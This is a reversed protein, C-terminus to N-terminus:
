KSIYIHEAEFIHLTLYKQKVDMDSNDPKMCIHPPSATECSVM